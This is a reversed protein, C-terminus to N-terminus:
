KGDLIAIKRDPCCNCYGQLPIGNKVENVISYIKGVLLARLDWLERTKKDVKFTKRLGKERIMQMALDEESDIENDVFGKRTEANTMVSAQSLIEQPTEGSFVDCNRFLKPFSSHKSYGAKIMLRQHEELLQYVKEYYGTKLHQLFCEDDVDPDTRTDHFTLIDVTLFPDMCDFRQKEKTTLTLNKSHKLAVDYEHKSKFLKKSYPSQYLRANADYDIDGIAKLEALYNLLTRRQIVGAKGKYLLEEIEALAMPKEELKEKILRMKRWKEQTIESMTRKNM